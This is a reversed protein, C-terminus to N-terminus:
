FDHRMGFAIGNYKDDGATNTTGFRGPAQNTPVSENTGCFFATYLTTRRTTLSYPPRKM